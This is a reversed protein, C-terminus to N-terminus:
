DERSTSLGGEYVRFQRRNSRVIRAERIRPLFPLQRHMGDAHGRPHGDPWVLEHRLLRLKGLPATGLWPLKEIPAISGLFRDVVERTHTLPMVLMEFSAARGSADRAEIVFTGVAGRAVIAHMEAHLAARSEDDFLEFINQGRFDYGFAECIRTGALRFRSAADDVRELIFTDPLHAAISSPEIEFRKPAVRDRRLGNWYNYLSQTVFERM